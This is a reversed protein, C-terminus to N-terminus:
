CDSVPVLPSTAVICWNLIAPIFVEPIRSSDTFMSPTAVRLLRTYNWRLAAPDFIEGDFM